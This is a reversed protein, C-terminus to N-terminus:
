YVATRKGGKEHIHDEQLLHGQYAEKSNGQILVSVGAGPIQNV